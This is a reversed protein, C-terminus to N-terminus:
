QIFSNLVYKWFKKKYFSHNMSSLQLFISWNRSLWWGYNLDHRSGFEVITWAGKSICYNKAIKQFIALNFSYFGLFILSGVFILTLFSHFSSSSDPWINMLNHTCSDLSFVVRRNRAEITEPPVVIIPYYTECNSLFFHHRFVFVSFRHSHNDTM